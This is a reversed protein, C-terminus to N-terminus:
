QRSRIVSLKYKLIKILEDIKEDDINQDKSYIKFIEDDSPIKSTNFLNFDTVLELLSLEKKRFSCTEIKDIMKPKCKIYMQNYFMSNGCDYIPAMRLVKLTHTDRIIGYNNMHRDTNTIYYDLLIQYSLFDKVYSEDLDLHTCNNVFHKYSGENKEYRTMEFVEWAPIFEESDSTIFNNSFCCFAQHEDGFQYPKVMYDVFPVVDQKKNILSAFEENLSQQCSEGYNGKVLIRNDNDDIFWKKKLEGQLSSNPSLKLYIGLSNKGMESYLESPSFQNVYLNVFDWDYDSDIPKLWYSDNLSLGLNRILLAQTTNEKNDSLVTAIGSRTEPIAREKLWKRIKYVDNTISLPLLEKNYSKGVEIVNGNYDLNLNIVPDNLHMLIMRMSIVGNRKKLLM